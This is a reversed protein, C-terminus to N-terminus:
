RGTAGPQTANWLAHWIRSPPTPTAPSPPWAPRPMTTTPCFAAARAKWTPRLAIRDKVDERTSTTPLDWYALDRAMDVVQEPGSAELFEVTRGRFAWFDPAQRALEVAEGETLWLVARVRDQVLYERRLNLTRYSTPAGHGLGSVFFVSSTNGLAERLRLPVDADEQGTVRVHLVRQGQERLWAGLDREVDARVYESAYIALLIAPRDWKLAQALERQLRASRAARPEPSATTV